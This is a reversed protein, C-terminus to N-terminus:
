ENVILKLIAENTYKSYGYANIITENLTIFTEHFFPDNHSIFITPVGKKLWGGMLNRAVPGCLKVNNLGYANFNLISCIILDCKNEDIFKNINKEGPDIMETVSFFREKLKNTLLNTREIIENETGPIPLIIHLVDKSKSNNIPLVNLRDKVVEVSNFTIKKILDDKNFSQPLIKRYQFIEYCEKNFCLMRYAANRIVDIKIENKQLRKEIEYELKEDATVFLLCDGGCNLFTVIGDYFNMYNCFGGMNLADSVVIGEFGLDERLLKKLINKSLTAPRYLDTERDIEDYCPLAIHGAMIVKVGENILTQYVLRFSKDWDEKNLTNISTSIHQDFEGVGDGPFHKITAVMGYDELGQIYSKSLQLVEDANDSISRTSVVPNLHNFLIDVCPGFAWQCGCDIAEKAGFAGIQYALNLDKTKGLAWMSPFVTTNKIACGTGCEADIAILPNYKSKCKIENVFDDIEDKSASNLFFSAYDIPPEDRGIVINPCCICKLLEKLSMQQIKNKIEIFDKVKYKM